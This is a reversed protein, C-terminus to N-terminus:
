RRRSCYRQGKQCLYELLELEVRSRSVLERVRGTARIGVAVLDDHYARVWDAEVVIITKTSISTSGCTALILFVLHVDM